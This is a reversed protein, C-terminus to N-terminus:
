LLNTTTKVNMNNWNIISVNSITSQKKYTCNVNTKLLLKLVDAETIEKKLLCLHSQQKCDTERLSVIYLINNNCM